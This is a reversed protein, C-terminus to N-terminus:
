LLTEAMAVAQAYMANAWKVAAADTEFPQSVTGNYLPPLILLKSLETELASAYDQGLNRPCYSTNHGALTDVCSYACERAFQSSSLAWCARALDIPQTELRVAAIRCAGSEIAELVWLEVAHGAAELKRLLALAAV